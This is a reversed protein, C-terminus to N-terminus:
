QQQRSANKSPQQNTKNTCFRAIHGPRRCVFCVGQQRCQEFAARSLGPVRFAPQMANLAAASADDAETITAEETELQGLEMPVADSRSSSVSLPVARQAGNVYGSPAWARQSMALRADHGQQYRKNSGLVQRAEVDAQQAISMAEELTKPRSMRVETQLQPQLGQKFLFILTAESMDGVQLQNRLRRFSELYSLVSTHSRQSLRYLAARATESSAEPQYNALFAKKFEDWTTITKNTVEAQRLVSQWWQIAGERLHSEAFPVRHPDELQVVRFYCEMEFLWTAAYQRRDRDGNFTSPKAPKIGAAAFPQVSRTSVANVATAQTQQQQRLALQLQQIQHNQQNLQDLLHQFAEEPSSLPVSAPPHGPTTM